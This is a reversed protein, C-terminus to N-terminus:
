LFPFFILLSEFRSLFLASKNEGEVNIGWGVAEEEKKWAPKKGMRQGDPPVETGKVAGKLDM